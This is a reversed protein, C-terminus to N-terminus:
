FPPTSTRYAPTLQISGGTSVVIDIRYQSRNILKARGTSGNQLAPPLNGTPQFLVFRGPFTVGAGSDVTNWRIGDPLFFPGSVLVGAPTEVQYSNQGAPFNVRFPENSTVAKMRAFQLQNAINQAALVVRYQDLATNVVPVGITLLVLGGFIVLVIETLSFGVEEKSIHRSVMM